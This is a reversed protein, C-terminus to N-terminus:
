FVSGGVVARGRGSRARLSATIARGSAHVAHPAHTSDHGRPAISAPSMAATSGSSQMPQPTQTSAHGLLTM